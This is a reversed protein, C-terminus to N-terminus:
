EVPVPRASHASIKRMSGSEPMQDPDPQVWNFHVSRDQLEYSLTYIGAWPVCPLEFPQLSFCSVDSMGGNTRQSPKQTPPFRYREPGLPSQNTSLVYGVAGAPARALVERQLYEASGADTGNRDPVWTYLAHKDFAARPVIVNQGLYIQHRQPDASLVLGRHPVWFLLQYPGPWPIRPPEFPWLKYVTSKEYANM